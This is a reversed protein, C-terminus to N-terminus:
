IAYLVSFSIKSISFMYVNFLEIQLLTFPSTLPTEFFIPTPVLSIAQPYLSKSGLVINLGQSERPVLSDVEWLTRQSGYTYLSHVGGGVFMWLCVCYFHQHPLSKLSRLGMSGLSSLWWYMWKRLMSFFPDSPISSNALFIPSFPVRNILTHAGRRWLTLSVCPLALVHVTNVWWILWSKFDRYCFSTFPRHFHM